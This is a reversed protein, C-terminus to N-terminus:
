TLEPAPSMWSNEPLCIDSLRAIWSEQLAQRAESELSLLRQAYTLFIEGERTLTMRKGDRNFLPTGLNTELQQIRTTVNSAVRGLRKAARTVSGESAVVRFIDVVILDM